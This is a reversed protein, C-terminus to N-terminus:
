GFVLIDDSINIVGPLIVFRQVPYRESFIEAASSLGFNLRKYQYLGAHTSFVTYKRSEPALPIQHYDSNLDLKSFVAAGNLAVIIDDITPHLTVNVNSPRISM